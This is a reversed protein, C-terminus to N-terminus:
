RDGANCEELADTRREQAQVLDEINQSLDERLETVRVQNDRLAADIILAVTVDIEDGVANVEANIDFRCASDEQLAQIQNHLNRNEFAVNLMAFGGILLGAGKMWETIRLGLPARVKSMM